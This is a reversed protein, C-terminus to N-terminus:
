NRKRNKNSRRPRSSQQTSKRPSLQASGVPPNELEQQLATQEIGPIETLPYIGMLVHGRRDRTWDGPGSFLWGSDAKHRQNFCNVCLGLFMKEEPLSITVLELVAGMPGNLPELTAVVISRKHKIRIPPVVGRPFAYIALTWSNATESTCNRYYFDSPEFVIIESQEEAMEFQDIGYAIIGVSPGSFISRSLPASFLGLGKAEGSVIDKSASIRGPRGNSFEHRLLFREDTKQQISHAIAPRLCLPV